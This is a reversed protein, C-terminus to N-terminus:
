KRLIQELDKKLSISEESPQRDNDYSMQNYSLSDMNPLFTGFSNSFMQFGTHFISNMSDTGISPQAFDPPPYPPPSDQKPVKETIKSQTFSPLPSPKQMVKLPALSQNISLPQPPPQQPQSKDIKNFKYRLEGQKEQSTILLFDAVSMSLPLQVCGTKFPVHLSVTLHNQANASTLRQIYSSITMLTTNNSVKIRQLPNNKNRSIKKHDANTLPVIQVYLEAKDQHM